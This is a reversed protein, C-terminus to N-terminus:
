AYDDKRYPEDFDDSNLFSLYSEYRSPALKHEDVAKKVACNPENLHLCNHFKCASKLAFIEPFYDGIEEKEMDVLGFGRIGPTDILYGGGKLAHMEAFTTTHQGQDHSKSIDSTKLNLDPDIKNILSSKGVGSYGSLLSTKNNFLERLEKLGFSDVVSTNLVRYGAQRYVLTLYELEEFHEETYLDIKNFVVVAPIDYAEATVLFRDIFKPFTKPFDITAIIVALDINAAIIHTRKSLNVSRRVIYNKRKEISNIVGRNEDTDELKVKVKDGVAIPNTSKIGAMRLKGVVRCDLYKNDETIVKYWSGTSKLVLANIM